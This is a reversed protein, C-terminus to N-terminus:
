VLLMLNVSINIKDEIDGVFTALSNFYTAFSGLNESTQQDEDNKSQVAANSLESM